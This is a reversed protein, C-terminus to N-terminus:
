FRSRVARWILLYRDPEALLAKALRACPRCYLQLQEEVRLPVLLDFAATADSSGCAICGGPQRAAAERYEEISVGHRRKLYDRTRYELQRDPHQSLWRRNRATVATPDRLYRERRVVADCEKCISERGDRSARRRYFATLEKEQRCRSCRKADSNM